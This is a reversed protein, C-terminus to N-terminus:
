AAELPTNPGDTASDVGVLYSPLPDTAIAAGTIAHGRGIRSASSLWWGTSSVVMGAALMEGVSRCRRDIGAKGTRHRDFAYTSNFYEGCGTAPSCRCHDGRLKM